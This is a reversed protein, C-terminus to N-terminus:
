LQQRRRDDDARIRQCVPDNAREARMCERAECIGKSLPNRGACREQVGRAPDPPPMAEAARPAPPPAPLTAAPESRARAAEARRRALDAEAQSAALQRRERALSEGERRPSGPRTRGAARERHPRTRIRQQRGARAPRRAAGTCERHVGGASCNRREGRIRGASGPAAGARCGTGAGRHEGSREPQERGDCLATPRRRRDAHDRLAHPEAVLPRRRGARRRGRGPRDVPGASTRRRCRADDREHRTGRVAGGSPAIAAETGGDAGCVTCSTRCACRACFAGTSGAARCHGTGAEESRCRLPRLLTGNCPEPPWLRHVRRNGASGRSGGARGGARRRLHPLVPRRRCETRRM